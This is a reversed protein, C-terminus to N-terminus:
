KEKCNDCDKQAHADTKYSFGCIRCIKVCTAVPNIAEGRKFGHKDMLRMQIIKDYNSWM